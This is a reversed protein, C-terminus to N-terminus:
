TKLMTRTMPIKAKRLYLTTFPALFAYMRNEISVRNFIARARANREGKNKSLDFWVIVSTKLKKM